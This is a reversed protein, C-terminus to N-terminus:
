HTSHTRLRENATAPQAILLAGTRDAIFNGLEKITAAIANVDLGQFPEDLITLAGPASLDTLNLQQREGGSLQGIRLRSNSSHEKRPSSKRCLTHFDAVSLNPFLNNRSPIFRLGLAYRRWTPLGLIDVGRLVVKGQEVPILGAIGELLTTKGWGNPASLIAVEGERLGFSLGRVVGGNGQDGIVLRRDRRIVASQVELIAPLQGTTTPTIRILSAGAGLSEEGVQCDKGGIEDILRKLIGDNGNSVISGPAPEIQLKGDRLTWVTQALDLVRPINFVHEVIVLTVRQQQVLASLLAWVEEIGPTDLGALPEDLFLIRAGAQVARAIAVRKTQGLSIRDASSQERGNLGLGSLRAVAGRVNGAEARASGGLFASLPNEGTQRPTAVAINDALSMTTFLRVDQWTRGVGESAVREPTFHDFPNLNQWWRRPFEFHETAGNAALYISGADPELSGSLINLLTTKGSGNDGRLLVVEGERLEASLGDLVIQGGFAKRLNQIRLLVKRGALPTVGDGHAIRGALMDNTANTM